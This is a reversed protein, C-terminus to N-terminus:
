ECIMARHIGPVATRRNGFSEFDVSLRRDGFQCKGEARRLHGNAAVQLQEFDFSESSADTTPRDRGLTTGVLRRYQLSPREARFRFFSDPRDGGSKEM